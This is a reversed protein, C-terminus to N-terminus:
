KKLEARGSATGVSVFPTDGNLTASKRVYWQGNDRFEDENDFDLDSRIHGNRRKATIEFYGVMKNGNYDLLVDGSASGVKIDDKPSAGLTIDVDGSASSFNCYQNVIVERGTVDGSASSISSRENININRISFDGSASSIDFEGECDEITYDGSATSMDFIGKCDEIDYDGSASNLDFIGQCEYLNYDGSATSGRFKGSIDEITLDGSASSFKIETGVPVTVIWTINGHSRDLIREEMQLSKGSEKFVPEFADRPKLNNIITVKIKDSEGKQIEVDGSITEITVRERSDFEKNIEDAFAYGAGLILVSVFVLIMTKVASNM